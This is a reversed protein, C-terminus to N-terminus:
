PEDEPTTPPTSTASTEPASTPPVPDVQGTVCGLGTEGSAFEVADLTTGEPCTPGAPGRPGAPPPNKALQAAVAAEIEEPTPARGPAGTAGAAGRPGREPPNNAFWVEVAAAIEEPTPPRGPAPPHAIMYEAVAAAVQAPTPAPGTCNGHAACYDAVAGDIEEPTPGPGREGAAGPLGQAGPIPAAQAVEAQTCAGVAELQARAEGGARCAAVVRSALDQRSSEADDRQQAVTPLQQAQESVESTASTTWVGLSIAVVGLAVLAVVWWRSPPRQDEQRHLGPLEVMGPERDPVAALRRPSLHPATM